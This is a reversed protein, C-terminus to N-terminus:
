HYGVFVYNLEELLYRVKFTLFIFMMTLMLQACM